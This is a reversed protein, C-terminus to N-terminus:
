KEVALRILATSVRGQSDKVDLRLVHVGPPVEAERMDIGDDNLFPKIRSTLDVGKAKMYTLKVANKDIAANNRAAFRITLPFPSRLNKADPTPAIQEVAPGRTIGRTTLGADPVSPLEAETMSILMEARAATALGFVVAIAVILRHLRSRM